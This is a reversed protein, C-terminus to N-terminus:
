RVELGGGESRREERAERGSDPLIQGRHGAGPLGRGYERRFHRRRAARREDGSPPVGHAARQLCRRRRGSVGRALDPRRVPRCLGAGSVRGGGMLHEAYARDVVLLTEGARVCLALVPVDAMRGRRAEGPRPISGTGGLRCLLDSIREGPLRLVRLGGSLNVLCGDAAQAVRAELDSLRAPDGTLVLTETPSRWALILAGDRTEAAQLGEPLVGLSDQVVAAFAGGRVFYRLAAAQTTEDVRVTLGTAEAM